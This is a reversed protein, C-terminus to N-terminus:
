FSFGLGVEIGQQWEEYDFTAHLDINDSLKLRSTVEASLQKEESPDDAKTQARVSSKLSLKDNFQYSVGSLFGNQKNSDSNNFSAGVYLDLSEFVNYAYGSDIQWMDFQQTNDSSSDSNSYTNSSIFWKHASPKEPALPFPNSLCISPLLFLGALLFQKM